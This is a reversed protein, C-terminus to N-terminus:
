LNPRSLTFSGEAHLTGLAQEFLTENKTVWILYDGEALYTEPNFRLLQSWFEDQLSQADPNHLSFGSNNVFVKCEDIRPASSFIYWEDFQNSPFQGLNSLPPILTFTDHKQWGQESEETSLTLSGSDFSTNVLFKGLVLQPFPELLDRLFGNTWEAWKYEGHTGVFM